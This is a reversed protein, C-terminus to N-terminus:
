GFLNFLKYSLRGEHDKIIKLLSDNTEIQIKLCEQMNSLKNFYGLSEAQCAKLQTKLQTNQSSLKENDFNLQDIQNSFKKQIQEIYLILNKENQTQKNDSGNVFEELSNM